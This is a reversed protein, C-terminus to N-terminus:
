NVYTGGRVTQTYRITLVNGILPERGVAGCDVVVIGALGKCRTTLRRKSRLRVPRCGADAGADM